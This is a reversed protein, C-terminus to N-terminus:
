SPRRAVFAYEYAKPDYASGAVDGLLTEVQLGAAALERKLVTVDFYQLWNYISRTRDKEIITYKDAVVKELEYKFTNLFGYYDNPSWFGNLLNSEYM